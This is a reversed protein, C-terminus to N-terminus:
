ALTERRRRVPVTPCGAEGGHHDGSEKDGGGPRLATARLPPEPADREHAHHGIQGAEGGQEDGHACVVSRNSQELPQEPRRRVQPHQGSGDGDEQRCPPPDLGAVEVGGLQLALDETGRGRPLVSAVGEARDGIRAGDFAPQRSRDVAAGPRDFGVLPRRRTRHRDGERTGAQSQQPDLVRAIVHEGRPHPGAGAQEAVDALAIRLLPLLRPARVVHVHHDPDFCLIRPSAPRQQGIKSVKVVLMAQLPQEGLVGVVDDSGSARVGDLM